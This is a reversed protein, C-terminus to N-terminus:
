SSCRGTVCSFASGSKKTPRGPYVRISQWCTPRMVSQWNRWMLMACSIRSPPMGHQRTGFLDGPGRTRFDLEALEFGDTTESFAKLREM